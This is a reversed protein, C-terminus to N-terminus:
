TGAGARSRLTLSRSQVERVDQGLVRGRV